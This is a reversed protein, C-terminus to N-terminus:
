GLADRKMLADISLLPLLPASPTTLTAAILVALNPSGTPDSPVTQRRAHSNPSSWAEQDETLLRELETMRYLREITSSM